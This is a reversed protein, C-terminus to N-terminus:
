AYYGAERGVPPREMSGLLQQGGPGLIRQNTYDLIGLPEGEWKLGARDQRIIVEMKGYTTEARIDGNQPDVIRSTFAVLGVDPDDVQLIIGRRQGDQTIGKFSNSLDKLAFDGLRTRQEALYTNIDDVDTSPLTQAMSAPDTSVTEPAINSAESAVPSANGTDPQRLVYVVGIVTAVVILIALFAVVTLLTTPDM